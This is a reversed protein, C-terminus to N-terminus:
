DFPLDDFLNNANGPITVVMGDLDKRLRIQCGLRSNDKPEHALEIMDMEAEIPEGVKEFWSPEVYVHCTSCAMIGSCACEIYERMLDAGNGVGHEAIDKLSM